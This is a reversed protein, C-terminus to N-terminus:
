NVKKQVPLLAVPHFEFRYIILTLRRRVGTEWVNREESSATERVQYKVLPRVVTQPSYQLHAMTEPM